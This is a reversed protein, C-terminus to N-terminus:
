QAVGVVEIDCVVLAKPPAMQNGKEGFALEYPMCIKRKGGARMGVMGMSIGKLPAGSVLWTEPKKTSWTDHLKTNDNLFLRYNVQVKSEATVEAGDGVTFDHVWLGNPLLTARDKRLPEGAFRDLMIVQKAVAQTGSVHVSWRRPIERKNDMAFLEFEYRAAKPEPVFTLETFRPNENIAKEPKNLNNKAIDFAQAVPISTTALVRWMAADTNSLAALETRKLVKPETTAVRVDVRQPQGDVLRFLELDWYAPEGEKQRLRVRAPRVDGEAEAAAAVAAEMTVPMQALPAWCDEDNPRLVSYDHLPNWEKPPTQAAFLGGAVLVLVPLPLLNRARM